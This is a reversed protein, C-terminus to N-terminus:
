AGHKRETLVWPVVVSTAFHLALSWMVLLTQNTTIVSAV